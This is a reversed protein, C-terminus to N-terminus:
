ASKRQTPDGGLFLHLMYCLLLFAVTWLKCINAMTRAKLLKLQEDQIVYPGGGLSEEGSENGEAVDRGTGQSEAGRSAGVAESTGWRSRGQSAEVLFGVQLQQFTFAFTEFCRQIGPTFLIPSFKQWKLWKVFFFRYNTKTGFCWLGLMKEQSSKVQWFTLSLFHSGDWKVWFFGNCRKTKCSVQRAKNAPEMETPEPETETQSPASNVAEAAAKGAQNLHM